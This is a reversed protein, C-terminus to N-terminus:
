VRGLLDFRPLLANFLDGLLRFRRKNDRIIVIETFRGRIRGLQLAHKRAFLDFRRGIQDPRVRFQRSIGDGSYRPARALTELHEHARIMKADVSEM